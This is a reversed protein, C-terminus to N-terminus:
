VGEEDEWYRKARGIISANIFAEQIGRDGSEYYAKRDSEGLSEFTSKSDVIFLRIPVGMQPAALGSGNANQMAEWMNDILRDLEPYDPSLEQFKEKLMRHGIALIPIRM